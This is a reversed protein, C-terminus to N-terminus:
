SRYWKRKIFHREMRVKLGDDVENMKLRLSKWPISVSSLELVGDGFCCVLDRFAGVASDLVGDVLPIDEDEILELSLEDVGSCSGITMVIVREGIVVSSKAKLVGDGGVIGSGGIM